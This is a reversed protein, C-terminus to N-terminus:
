RRPSSMAPGLRGAIYGEAALQEFVGVVTSRALGLEQALARTSPLRAGAGIRGEGIAQRLAVPSSARCRCAALARDLRTTWLTATAVSSGTRNPMPRAYYACDPFTASHVCPGQDDRKRDALAGARHDGFREAIDRRDDIEGIDRRAFAFGHQAAGPRHEGVVGGVSSEAASRCIIPLALSSCNVAAPISQTGSSSRGGPSGTAPLPPAEASGIASCM